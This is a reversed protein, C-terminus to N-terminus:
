PPPRAAGQQRPFGVCSVMPLRGKSMKAVRETGGGERLDKAKSVTFTGMLIVPGKM